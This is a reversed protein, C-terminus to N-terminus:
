RAAPLRVTYTAGQGSQRTEASVHGGHCLVIYNAISLGVALRGYRRPGAAPAVPEFANGNTPTPGGGADSVRLVAAGDEAACEVVVRGADPSSRIAHTVLHTVASVLCERDGVTVPAPGPLVVLQVGREAALRDLTAVTDRVLERVDLSERKLALDASLLQGLEALEDLLQAQTRVSQEIGEVAARRDAEELGDYSLLTVWGVLGQLPSRLEHSLASLFAAQTAESLFPPLPHKM